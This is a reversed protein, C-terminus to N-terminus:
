HTDLPVKKVTMMANKMVNNEDLKLPHLLM